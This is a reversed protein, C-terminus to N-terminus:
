GALVRALWEDSDRESQRTVPADVFMQYGHPAGPYVHLETPVGARNLRLAYDVDEDRFGDVAGVSVYSPPLGALDTARAPAAYHPVDDRGYQDGLYSRWGFQNADRSWVPLGEVRSSPSQQRDDLMPSELLQFALPSEGRDRVLLALGAALGGGASPGYVGIRTRDIGLEDAHDITWRLARHCDDLPGPYPVEPALRYDVSVGMVGSQTCWSEFRHDDMDYSGIIFGGGHISFICPLLGTAAKARHTRVPIPPDGPVLHEARAVLDTSGLGPLPVRAKAVTEVDIDEFLRLDRLSAFEPSLMDGASQPGDPM